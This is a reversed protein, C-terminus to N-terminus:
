LRVVRDERASTLLAVITAANGRSNELAIVQPAGDLISKEMSQVELLYANPEEIKVIDTSINDLDDSFTAARAKTPNLRTILARGTQPPSNVFPEDLQIRGSSGVIELQWCTVAQFSSTFQGFAGNPFRLQGALTLDVGSNSSVQWGVVELPESQMITRMFSVPYCGVDWLSGGGLELDLRVDNTKALNFSFASQMFRVDGIAKEAVLKKVAQTQSPFRYMAAEQIIVSNRRAADIMRDVDAVTLALPKECLVHKGADASKISWEAHFANPLSIYVADIGRDALLAEYSHYANPIHWENAYQDARVRDRSAVAILESGAAQRIVPILGENIRATSILGWRVKRASM